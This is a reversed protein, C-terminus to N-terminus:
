RTSNIANLTIYMYADFDRCFKFKIVNMNGSFGVTGKKKCYKTSKELQLYKHNQAFHRLICKKELIM